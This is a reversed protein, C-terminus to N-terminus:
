REIEGPMPRDEIRLREEIKQELFLAEDPDDLGKVLTEKEGNRLAMEVRYATRTGNKTHRVKAQCYLQEVAHAAVSKNGPWPVPGHSVSLEGRTARVETRNLFGAIVYYTLGVGVSVHLLPFLLAMLPPGGTDEGATTAFAM